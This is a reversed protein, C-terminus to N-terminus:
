TIASAATLWSRRQGAAGTGESAEDPLVPGRWRRRPRRFHSAEWLHVTGGSQAREAPRDDAHYELDREPQLEPAAAAAIRQSSHPLLEGSRRMGPMLAGAGSNGQQTSQVPNPFAIM